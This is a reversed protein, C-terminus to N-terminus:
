CDGEILALFRDSLGAADYPEVLGFQTAVELISMGALLAYALKLKDLSETGAYQKLLNADSSIRVLVFRIAGKCREVWVPPKVPEGKEGRGTLIWDASFGLNSLNALYKASPPREGREYRSLGNQSFGVRKAFETQSERGRIEMLRKGIATPSLKEM